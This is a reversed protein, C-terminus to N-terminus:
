YSDILTVDHGFSEKPASSPEADLTKSGSVLEPHRTSSILVNGVAPNVKKLFQIIKRAFYKNHTTKVRLKDSTKRM